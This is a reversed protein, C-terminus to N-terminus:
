PAQPQIQTGAAQWNWPLLEALGRQPMGAIRALVIEAGRCDANRRLVYVRVRALSIWERSM